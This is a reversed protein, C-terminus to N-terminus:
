KTTSSRLLENLSLPDKTIEDDVPPSSQKLDPQKQTSQSSLETDISIDSFSLPPASSITLFNGFESMHLKGVDSLTLDPLKMYGDPKDTLNPATLLQNTVPNWLKHSSTRREASSELVSTGSVANSASPSARSSVAAPSASSAHPSATKSASAAVPEGFHSSVIKPPSTYPTTYYNHDILEFPEPATSTLTPSFELISYGRVLQNPSISERMNGDYLLLRNDKYVMLDGTIPPDTTNLGTPKFQLDYIKATYLTPDHDAIYYQEGRGTINNFEKIINAKEITLQEIQKTQYGAERIKDATYKNIDEMSTIRRAKLLIVHENTPEIDMYFYNLESFTDEEFDEFDESSEPKPSPSVFDIVGRSMWRLADGGGDQTNKRGKRGSRSGGVHEHDEGQCKTRSNRRRNGRISVRKSSRKRSGRSRSDRKKTRKKTRKRSGRKRSVRKTSRKRSVRKTSRKRSGRKKSVRKRSSRKRSSRKRSGRKRSSKKSVKRSRRKRGGTMPQKVSSLSNILDKKLKPSGDSKTLKINLSKCKQKLETVTLNEM